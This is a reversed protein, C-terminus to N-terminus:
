MHSSKIHHKKTVREMCDCRVHPLLPKVAGVLLAVVLVILKDFGFLNVGLCSTVCGRTLIGCESDGSACM